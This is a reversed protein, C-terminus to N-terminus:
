EQSVQEELWMLLFDRTKNVHFIWKRGVKKRAEIFRRDYLIYKEFYGKSFGTIKLVDNLSYFIKSTDIQGIKDELLQKMTKDLSDLNVEIINNEDSIRM